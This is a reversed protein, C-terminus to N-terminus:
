ENTSSLPGDETNKRRLEKKEKKRKAGKRIEAKRTREVEDPKGAGEGWGGRLGKGTGIHHAVCQLILSM